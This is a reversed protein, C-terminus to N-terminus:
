SITILGTSAQLIRLADTSNIAGDRNTDAAAAEGVNLKQLGTASRLVTLADTSNIKKDYSVDGLVVTYIVASNLYERNTYDSNIKAWDTYSSTYYINELSECGDFAYSGISKVSKPILINKLSYLISFAEDGISTIGDAIKIEKIQKYYNTWPSYDIYYESSTWNHMKGSGEFSLVGTDKNFYWTINDGASGSVIRLPPNKDGYDNESIPFRAVFEEEDYEADCVHDLFNDSGKLFYGYKASDADWTSDLLYYKDDLEVINWAHGGGSAVGVIVRSDIGMELALRYFLVSYGQCVCVNDIIAGYATYQIEYSEDYVHEYDYDINKCMYDYVSKIKQYDSKGSLNLSKLLNSVAKDVQSEQAATTYYYVYYTIDTKGSKPYNYECEYGGYQWDIYDGETPNGTHEVAANFLDYITDENFSNGSILNVTIVEQRNKLAERLKLVCSEYNQYTASYKPKTKQASLKQIESEDLVDAYHPNVYTFSGPEKKSVAFVGVGLTGFIVAVSLFASIMVKLKARMNYDEKGNPQNFLLM